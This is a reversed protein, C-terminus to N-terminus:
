SYQRISDEICQMCSGVSDGRQMAETLDDLTDRHLRLLVLSKLVAWRLYADTDSESFMNVGNKGRPTSGTPTSRSTGIYSGATNDISVDSTSGSDDKREDMGSTVAISQLSRGTNGTVGYKRLIALAVPFDEAGGITDGFHLTEAVMGAMAVILLSGTKSATLADKSSVIKRDITLLNTRTKTNIVNGISDGSNRALQQRQRQQQMAMAVTYEDEADPLTALIELGADKEGTVDYDIIPVGCLYGALFHGAEHYCIRALTNESSREIRSSSGMGSIRQQISDVLSPALFIICILTFPTLLSLLGVFNKISNEIPLSPVVIAGFLVALTSIAIFPAKVTRSRSNKASDFLLAYYDDTSFSKKSLLQLERKSVKSPEINTSAWLPALQQNKFSQLKEAFSSSSGEDLARDVLVKLPTNGGAGLSQNVQVSRKSCRIKKSGFCLLLCFIFIARM